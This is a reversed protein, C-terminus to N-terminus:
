ARRSSMIRVFWSETVALRNSALPTQAAAASPSM